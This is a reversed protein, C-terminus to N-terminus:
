ASAGRRQHALQSLQRAALEQFPGRVRQGQTQGSHALAVGGARDAVRENLQAMRHQETGGRLQHPFQEGGLAIRRQRLLQPPEIRDLQQDQIINAVDFLARFFGFDQESRDRFAILPAGHQDGAVQHAAVPFPDELVRHRGCRGDVPQNM